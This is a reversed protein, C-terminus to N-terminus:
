LRDSENNGEKRNAITGLKGAIDFLLLLEIVKACGFWVKLAQDM